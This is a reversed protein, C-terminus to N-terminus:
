GRPRCLWRASSADFSTRLATAARPVVGVRQPNLRRRAGAPARQPAQPERGPHQPARRQHHRWRCRPWADAVPLAAHHSVKSVKSAKPLAADLNGRWRAPNPGERLGRATAFDLVLEIRSRVRTATETKSLWIPEVARILHAATIDRVLMRGLVPYAYTQLTATWQAAHKANKWSKEHQEIYAQATAEFTQHLSREAAAASAAALRRAIPDEGNQVQARCARARERAEALTVSPYSGHGM